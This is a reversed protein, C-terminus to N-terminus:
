EIYQHFWDFDFTLKLYQINEHFVKKIDLRIEIAECRTIKM